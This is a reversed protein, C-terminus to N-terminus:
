PPNLLPIVHELIVIISKKMRDVANVTVLYVDKRPDIVHSFHRILIHSNFHSNHAQGEQFIKAFEQEAKVEMAVHWPVHQIVQGIQGNVIKRLRSRQLEELQRQDIRLNLRDHDQQGTCINLLQQIM